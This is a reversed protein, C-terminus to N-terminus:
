AKQSLIFGKQLRDMSRSMALAEETPFQRIIEGSQSDVLKVVTRQSDKDINFQLNINSQLLLNNINDLSAQLKDDAPKKQEYKSLEAPKDIQKTESAAGSRVRAAPAAEAVVRPNDTTSRSPSGTNQILM